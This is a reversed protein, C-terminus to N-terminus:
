RATAANGTRAAPARARPARGGARPPARRASACGSSSRAHLPPERARLAPREGPPRFGLLRGEEVEVPFHHGVPRDDAQAVGDEVVAFRLVPREARRLELRPEDLGLELRELLLEVRVEEEVRQVGDRRQHVAVDLGGIAREHPQAVQQPQRELVDALLFDRELRLEVEQRLVELDLLRAEGIAQDHAEVHLGLREVREHGVEDQLREDLVRDLVAHGLLAPGPVDVDRGPALAVLQAHFDAVVPHPQRLVRQRRQLLADAHRRGARPQLVEEAGVVPELEVPLGGPQRDDHGNGPLGLDPRQGFLGAAGASRM